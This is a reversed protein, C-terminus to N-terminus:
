LMDSDIFEMEEFVQMMKYCLGADDREGPEGGFLKIREAEIKNAERRQASERNQWATYRNHWHRATVSNGSAM